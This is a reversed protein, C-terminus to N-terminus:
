IQTRGGLITATPYALQQNRMHMRRFSHLPLSSFCSHPSCKWNKCNCNLQRKLYFIFANLDLYVDNSM